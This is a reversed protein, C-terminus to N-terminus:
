HALPQTHTLPIDRLAQGGSPVLRGLLFPGVNGYPRNAFRGVPPM